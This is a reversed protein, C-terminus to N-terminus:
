ILGQRRLEDMGAQVAAKIEAATAGNSARVMAHTMGAEIAEADVQQQVPVNTWGTPPEAGDLVAEVSGPPWGVAKAIAPVTYPMRAKPVNGAEASQVSGISVNARDALDGQSLGQARRAQAIAQGLRAWAKPDRNM